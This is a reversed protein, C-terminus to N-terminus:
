IMTMERTCVHTECFPAPVTRVVHETDHEPEINPSDPYTLIRSVNDHIHWQHQWCHAIPILEKRANRHTELGVGEELSSYSSFQVGDPSRKTKGHRYTPTEKSRAKENLTSGPNPNPIHKYSGQSNCRRVWCRCHLYQPALTLRALVMIYTRM